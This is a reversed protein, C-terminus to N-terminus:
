ASLSYNEIETDYIKYIIFLGVFGHELTTSLIFPLYSISSSFVEKAKKRGQQKLILFSYTFIRINKQFELIFKTRVLENTVFIFGFKFNGKIQQIVSFSRATFKHNTQYPVPVPVAFQLYRLSCYRGNM